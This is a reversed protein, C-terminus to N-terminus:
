NRNSEQDILNSSFWSIPANINAYTEGTFNKLIVIKIAATAKDRITKAWLSHNIKAKIPIIPNVHAFTNEIIKPAAM